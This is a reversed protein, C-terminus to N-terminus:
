TFRCLFYCSILSCEGHFRCYSDPKHITTFPQFQLFNLPDSHVAEEKSIVCCMTIQKCVCLPKEESLMHLAWLEVCSPYDWSVWQLCWNEGEASCLIIWSQWLLSCPSTPEPFLEELGSSERITDLFVESQWWFVDLFEMMTNRTIENYNWTFEKERSYNPINTYWFFM